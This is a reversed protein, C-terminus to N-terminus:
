HDTEHHKKSQGKWWNITNLLGTSLNYYPTWGISRLKQNDGCIYMPEWDRYPVSGFQILETSDFISGITELIYKISVPEGSCINFVGGVRKEVMLTLANAIDIVHLYDRIQKGETTAFSEGCMLKNIAAPVLRRPDEQPGFLYFIRGWSFDIGFQSSLREGLMEFSLKSRAYLTEPKLPDTEKLPSSRMEYEACTGAGVFQECGCESLIRLLNLSGQLASLNELSELYKGPEAYWALHICGEPKWNSLQESLSKEDQFTGRIIEYAGKIDHLRWMCDGPMALVIVKHGREVLTRTVHSGIFGSAGTVLVKM